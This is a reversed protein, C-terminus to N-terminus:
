GANFGFLNALKGVWDFVWCLFAAILSSTIGIFLNRKEELLLAFVKRVPPLNLAFACLLVCLVNLGLKMRSSIGFIVTAVIIVAATGLLFFLYKIKLNELKSTATNQLRNCPLGYECEEHVGDSVLLGVTHSFSRESVKKLWKVIVNIAMAASISCPSSSNYEDIAWHQDRNKLLWQIMLVIQPNLPDEGRDLLSSIIYPKFAYFCKDHKLSTKYKLGGEKTTAVFFKESQCYSNFSGDTPLNKYIYRITSEEILAYDKENYGRIDSQAYLKLTDTAWMTIATGPSNRYEWYVYGEVDKKMNNLLYDKGKNLAHIIKQFRNSHKADDNFLIPNAQALLIAKMALATMPVSSQCATSQPYKQYGWGGDTYAQNALWYVTRRLSYRVNPNLGDRTIYRTNMLAIVAQSTTWVSPAEDIGWAEKDESNKTIVDDEPTLPKFSDKLSYLHDQMKWIANLPLLQVDSLADLVTALTSSRYRENKGLVYSVGGEDNISEILPEILTRINIEGLSDNLNIWSDATAIYDFVQDRDFIM